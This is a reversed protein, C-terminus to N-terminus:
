CCWGNLALARPDSEPLCNATLWSKVILKDFCVKINSVGAEIAISQLPATAFLGSVMRLSRNDVRIIQNMASDSIWPAWGVAAYTLVSRIVALYVTKLRSPHWGWKKNALVALM